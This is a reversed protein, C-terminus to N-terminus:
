EIVGPATTSGTGTVTSVQVPIGTKVTGNTQFHIVIAKAIAKWIKEADANMNVALNPIVLKIQTIIEEGLQDSNLAM